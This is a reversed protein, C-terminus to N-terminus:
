ELGGIRGEVQEALCCCCFHPLLKPRLLRTILGLDLSAKQKMGPKFEVDRRDDDGVGNSGDKNSDEDFAWCQINDDIVAAQNGGRDGVVVAM